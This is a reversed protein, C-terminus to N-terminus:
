KVGKISNLVIKKYGIYCIVASIIIPIMYMALFLLVLMIDIIDDFLLKSLIAVIYTGPIITLITYYYIIELKIIKLIQKNTYGIKDLADFMSVRMFIEMFYKYIISINMLIIIVINALIITVLEQPKDIVDNISSVFITTATTLIGILFTTKRISFNLNAKAIMKYKQDNHKNINKVIKQPIYRSVLGIAGIAGIAAFVLFGQDKIPSIIIMILGLLYIFLTISSPFQIIGKNSITSKRESHLLDNIQNRYLYGCNLVANVIILAVALYTIQFFVTSDIYLTSASTNLQLNMFTNSLPILLCGILVGIPMAIIIWILNQITVYSILKFLGSGSLTVITVETTKKSLYFNNAFIVVLTVLIIVTFSIISSFTVNMTNPVLEEKLLPHNIINFFIVSTATAFTLTLCYFLGKKYEKILLLTALKITSLM